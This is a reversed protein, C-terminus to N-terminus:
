IAYKITIEFNKTIRGAGNKYTNAVKVRKWVNGFLARVHDSFVITELDARQSANAGVYALSISREGNKDEHEERNVIYKQSSSGEAVKDFVKFAVDHLTGFKDLWQVRLSDPVVSEPNKGFVCSVLVSQTLIQKQDSDYMKIVVMSDLRQYQFVDVHFWLAKLYEAM